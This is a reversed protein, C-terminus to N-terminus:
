FSENAATPKYWWESQSFTEGGFRQRRCVQKKDASKLMKNAVYLREWKKFM